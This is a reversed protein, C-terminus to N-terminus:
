KIVLGLKVVPKKEALFVKKIEISEPIVQGIKRGNQLTVDKHVTSKSIGFIKATSRVTEKTEIIYHALKTAREEISIGKM